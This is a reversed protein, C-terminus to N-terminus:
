PRVEPLLVIEGAAPPRMDLRERAERVIRSRRELTQIRHELETREADVLSIERRLRDLEELSERVRAQRWTVLSLAALLAAAVLAIWSVLGTRM